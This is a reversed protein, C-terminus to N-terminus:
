PYSWLSLSVAANADMRVQGELGGVTDPRAYLRVRQTGAAFELELGEASWKSAVPTPGIREISLGRVLEDSLVLRLPRDAAERREAVLSFPSQFRALRPLSVSAHPGLAIEQRSLPGSGGFVGLTGAAVIALLLWRGM